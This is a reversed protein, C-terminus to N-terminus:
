ILPTIKSSRLHIPAYEIIAIFVESHLREACSFEVNKFRM